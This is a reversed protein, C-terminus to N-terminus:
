DFMSFHMEPRYVWNYEGASSDYKPVLVPVYDGPRQRLAGDGAAERVQPDCSEETPTWYCIETLSFSPKAPQARGTFDVPSSLPQADVHVYFHGAQSNADRLRLIVSHKGPEVPFFGSPWQEIGAAIETTVGEVDKGEYRVWTPAVAADTGADPETASTGGDPLPYVAIREEANAIALRALRATYGPLGTPLPTGDHDLWETEIRVHIDSTLSSGETGILYPEDQNKDQASIRYARVKLNPPKLEIELTGSGGEPGITWGQGATAQLTARATGIYGTARNIVIVRLADGPSLAATRGSPDSSTDYDLELSDGGAVRKLAGSESDYYLQDALGSWLADDRASTTLQDGIYTGSNGRQVPGRFLSSIRLCAKGECSSDIVGSGKTAYLSSSVYALAESPNMGWRSGILKDDAARYVFVESDRLEYDGIAQLLGAHGSPTGGEGLSYVTDGELFGGKQPDNRWKTLDELMHGAPLPGTWYVPQNDSTFVARVDLMAAEIPFNAYATFTAKAKSEYYWDLWATSLFSGAITMQPETLDAETGSGYPLFSPDAVAIMQYTASVRPNPYATPITAYVKFWSHGISDILIDELRYRGTSSTTAEHLGNASGTMIEAGAIPSWVTDIRNEDQGAAMVGPSCRSFTGSPFLIAGEPFETCDSSLLTPGNTGDSPRKCNPDLSQYVPDNADLSFYASEYGLRCNAKAVVQGRRDVLVQYTGTTPFIESPPIDANFAVLPSTFNPQEACSPVASPYLKTGWSASADLESRTFARTSGGPDACTYITPADLAGDEPIDSHLVVLGPSETMAQGLLVAMENYREVLMPTADIHEGPGLHPELEHMNGWFDYAVWTKQAEPDDARTLTGDAKRMVVGPTAVRGTITQASAPKAVFALCAALVALLLGTM